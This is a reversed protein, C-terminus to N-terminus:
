RHDSIGHHQRSKVWQPRTVGYPSLFRPWCQSLYHSTAQRSWAMVQVLASQDDTFDLSTWIPAIECSIGWGDTVLIQNFIVYRFNWEFKVPALSNVWQPRTVCIHTPLSVMMSESLPKDGPRRWAMIQVLAPINNIPGKPVFKLSIKIPTWVNENLFICKFIDDAFHRGNQRPRLTNFAYIHFVTHCSTMQPIFQVSRNFLLEIKNGFM